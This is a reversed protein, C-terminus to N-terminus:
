VSYVGIASLQGLDMLLNPFAHSLDMLTVSTLIGMLQSMFVWSHGASTAHRLVSYSCVVLDVTGSLWLSQAYSGISEHNSWAVGFSASM